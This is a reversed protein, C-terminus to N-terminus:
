KKVKTIPRIIYSQSAWFKLLLSVKFKLLGVTEAEEISPNSTYGCGLYKHLLIHSTVDM